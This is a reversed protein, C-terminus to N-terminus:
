HRRNSTGVGGAAFEILFKLDFLPVLLMSNSTGRQKRLEHRRMSLPIVFKPFPASALGGGSMMIQCSGDVVVGLMVTMFGTLAHFRDTLSDEGNGAQPGSEQGGGLGHGLFHQRDDVPRHDLVDNVLRPLGADLMEDEDGSTVLADDLIMEITRELELHRQALALPLVIELEQRVVQGPGPRRAERTLLLRESKAVRHPARALEHAVLRERQQQGVLEHLVRLAAEGLHHRERVLDLFGCVDDRDLFDRALAHCAVALDAALAEGDRLHYLLGRGLLRRRVEDDRAAVDQLWLDEVYQLLLLTAGAALDLEGVGHAPERALLREVAHLEFALAEVAAGLDAEQGGVEGVRERAWIEPGLEALLRLPQQSFPSRSVAARAYESATARITRSPANVRTKLESQSMRSRHHFRSM